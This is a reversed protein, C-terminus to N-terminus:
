PADRRERRRSPVGRDLTRGRNRCAQASRARPPMPPRSIKRRSRTSSPSGSTRRHAAGRAARAPAATSDMLGMKREGARSGSGFSGSRAAARLGELGDISDTASPAWPQVRGWGLRATDEGRAHPRLTTAACFGELSRPRTRNGDGAECGRPTACDPLAGPQPGPPRLNL